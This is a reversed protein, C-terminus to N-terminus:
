RDSAPTEQEESPQLSEEQEPDPPSSAGEAAAGDGGRGNGGYGGGYGGRSRGYGGGEGYGGKYGGRGPRGYGGQVREEEMREQVEEQEQRKRAEDASKLIGLIEDGARQKLSEEAAEYSGHIDLIAAATLAQLDAGDVVTQGRILLDHLEPLAPRAEAGLHGLASLATLVVAPSKASLAERLREFVLERQKEDLFDFLEGLKGIAEARLHENRHGSLKLLHSLAAADDFHLNALVYRVFTVTAADGGDAREAFVPLSDITPIRTGSSTFAGIAAQVLLGEPSNNHYHQTNYNKVVELITEAAERGYGNAGFAALARIAETRREVKLETRWTRRWYEFGKGDYTLNRSDIVTGVVRADSNVSADVTVAKGNAPSDSSSTTAIGGAKRAELQRWLNDVKEAQRTLEEQRQMLEASQRTSQKLDEELEEAKVDLTKILEGLIRRQVEYRARALDAAGQPGEYLAELRKREAVEIQEIQQTVKSRQEDLRARDIPADDNSAEEEGLLELQAKLQQVQPNQAMATKVVSDIIEPDDLRAFQMQAYADVLELQLKRREERNEHLEALTLKV